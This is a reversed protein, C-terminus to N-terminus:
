NSVKRYLLETKSWMAEVTYNKQYTNQAGLSLKQLEKKNALLDRTKKGMKKYDGESIIIGNESNIIGRLSPVDFAVVPVGTSFSELVSLPLVETKSPLILVSIESFFKKLDSVHGMLKVSSYGELEKRDSGDGGVILNLTKNAKVFEIIGKESVLRGLFGAKNKHGAVKIEPVGNNIQYIKEKIGHDNLYKQIYDTPAVFADTAKRYLWLLPRMKFNFQDLRHFTRVIKIKSGLVKSGVSLSHERLMQAHVIEINNKKYFGMLKLVSSLMLFPNFSSKMSIFSYIFGNKELEKVLPGDQGLVFVVDHGTKKAERALYLVYKESGGVGPNCIPYCIKM